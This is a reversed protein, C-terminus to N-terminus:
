QGGGAERAVTGADVARRVFYLRDGTAVDSGRLTGAPLEVVAYARPAMALRWAGMEHVMKVVMGSRSVFAADIPFRMFATHISFCPALVMGTSAPLGDRGLLGQRRSRRTVALEVVEAMVKDTRENVLALPATGEAGVARGLAAAFDLRETGAPRVPM